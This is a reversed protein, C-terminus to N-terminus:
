EVNALVGGGNRGRLGREAWRLAITFPKKTRNQIFVHIRYLM